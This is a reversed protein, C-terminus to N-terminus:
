HHRKCKSSLVNGKMCTCLPDKQATTDSPMQGRKLHCIVPILPKLMNPLHLCGHWPPRTANDSCRVRSSQRQLRGTNAQWVDDSSLLTVCIQQGWHASLVKYCNCHFNFSKLVWLIFPPSYISFLPQEGPNSISDDMLNAFTQKAQPM